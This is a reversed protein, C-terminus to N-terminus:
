ELGQLLPWWVSASIAVDFFCHKLPKLGLSGFVHRGLCIMVATGTETETETQTQTETERERERETEREIERERERKRDKEKRGERIHIIWPKTRLYITLTHQQCSPVCRKVACLWLM